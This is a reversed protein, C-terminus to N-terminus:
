DLEQRDLYRAVEEDPLRRAHPGDPTFGVSNIVRRAAPDPTVIEGKHLLGLLPTAVSGDPFLSNNLIVVAGTDPPVLLEQVYPRLKQEGTPFMPNNAALFANVGLGADAAARCADAAFLRSRVTSSEYGLVLLSAEPAGDRHFKTTVQQDFRGLREPVFRIGLLEGFAAGITFLFRRLAQSSVPQTPAITAFGPQDLSSRWVSEVLRGLTDASLPEGFPIRLPPIASM